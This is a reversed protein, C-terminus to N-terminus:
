RDVIAIRLHYEQNGARLRAVLTGRDDDGDVAISELLDIAVYKFGAFKGFALKPDDIAHSLVEAMNSSYVFDDPRFQSADKTAM